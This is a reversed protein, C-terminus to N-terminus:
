PVGVRPGDELRGVIQHGLTRPLVPVYVEGDILHLDTRCVGCAEVALALQGPGAVPDPLETPQLPEGVARLRMARM